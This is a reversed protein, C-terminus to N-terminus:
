ISKDYYIDSFPMYFNSMKFRKYSSLEFNRLWGEADGWLSKLKSDKFWNRQTIIDRVQILISM